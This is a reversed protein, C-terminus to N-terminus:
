FCLLLWRIGRRFGCILLHESLELGSERSVQRLWRNTEYRQARSSLEGETAELSRSACHVSAMLKLVADGMLELRELCFRRTGRM